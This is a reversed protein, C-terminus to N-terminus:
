GAELGSRKEEQVEGMLKERSRRLHLRATQEAREPDKGAIAEIIALHEPLTERPSRVLGGRYGGLYSFMIISYTELISSLLDSGGAEMLFFHFKKDEEAYRKIDEPDDSIKLGKFFDRLRESESNSIQLSARRAALGELVERLEFIHILEERSFRRLYFGKRPIATILKEQELKKLANVLPTRSIGLEQAVKNQYIKSGPLLKQELILSRLEKYVKYDLNVHRTGLNRL